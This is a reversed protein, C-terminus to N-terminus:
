GTVSGLHHIMSRSPDHGSCFPLGQVLDVYIPRPELPGDPTEHNAESADSIRENSLDLSYPRADEPVLFSEEVKLRRFMVSLPWVVQGRDQVFCEHTSHSMPRNQIVHHEQLFYASAKSAWEAKRRLSPERKTRRASAKPAPHSGSGGAAKRNRPNM